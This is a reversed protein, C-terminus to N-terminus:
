CNMEGKLTGTGIFVHYKDRENPRCRDQVLAELSTGLARHQRLAEQLVEKEEQLV